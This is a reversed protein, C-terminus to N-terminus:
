CEPTQREGLYIGARDYILKHIVCGGGSDPDFGETGATSYLNLAPAGDAVLPADGGAATPADAFAYPSFWFGSGYVGGQNWFWGNGSWRSWGNQSRPSWSHHGGNRWDRAQGRSAVNAQRM